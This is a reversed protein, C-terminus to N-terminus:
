HLVVLLLYTNVKDEWGVGRIKKEEIRNREAERGEGLEEEKGKRRRGEKGGKGLLINQSCM